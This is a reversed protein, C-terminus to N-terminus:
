KAIVGVEAISAWPGNNVESLVRIMLYRGKVADFTADQPDRSKAFTLRSSPEGFNTPTEGVFIECDAIAGNWGNDQRAMYRIGRVERADGLDLVLEHPHKAAQGAFSTHWWTSLDGDIAKSALKGNSISESSVRQIKLQDNPILGSQPLSKSKKRKEQPAPGFKGFKAQRDREHLDPDHFTGEVAPTHAKAAYDVLQKLVDPQSDAVNMSESIDKALDYLEWPGNSKPRVAKWSGMRVATQPGIEWYLYDHQTQKRGAVEEGLLEPVISMGDIDNPTTAGALEAVTPMVDPFYWLLDSVKGPLIKGPWRAIMPIRLGGEYLMGKRGRFEDKTLPNLNAGHIGRHHEADTFYDNGGNDGCFFVLTNEELELEKLLALVEGVQRDVMSVMAAYRRAQENWPKDKYIAWAPDDDPINFLGHPPTIPMYCFFPEDKHDRIFQKAADVIVYHSYTEGQEGGQNGKLPVEESNRIIYPPYYSHAHVQDYYGLFVDFGHKEPVGTSGRGGCGWKGFGGTAYGREKLITAVTVEDARLPTGGGNVRISTHGSHKGTMLTCRTPACVSSGALAQTFRLGEAAMRDLNPTQINPNGVCSLEYYGLEDAMIYVINPRSAQGADVRQMHTTQAVLIVATSIALGTLRHLLGHPFTQCCAASTMALSQFM